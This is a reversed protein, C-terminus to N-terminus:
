ECIWQRLLKSYLLAKQVESAWGGGSSLMWAAGLTCEAGPGLDRFDREDAPIRSSLSAWRRKQEDNSTRLHMRITSDELANVFLYVGPSKVLCGAYSGKGNRKGLCHPHIGAAFVTEIFDRRDM